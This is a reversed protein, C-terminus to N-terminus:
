RSCCCPFSRIAPLPVNEALAEPALPLGPRVQADEHFFVSVEGDIEVYASKVQGLHELHHVRLDGFFEAASMGEEDLAVLDVVGEYLVRTVKGEIFAELRPARNTWKNLGWYLSLVVAIAVCSPLLPSDTYIMADGLASGLGIIVILELVSFQRVEKKGTLKMLALAFLFMLCARLACELLFAWTGEEGLFLTRPDSM